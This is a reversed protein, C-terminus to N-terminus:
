LSAIDAEFSSFGRDVLCSSETGLWPVAVRAGGEVILGAFVGRLISRCRMEM